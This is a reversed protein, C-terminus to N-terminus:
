ATKTLIKPEKWEERLISYLYFDKWEGRAFLSKRIVGENNFGAKGLVKQSGENRVDTHAQVRVIDKSLFLYDVMIIAAETGYGKGRESPLLYYFIELLGSSLFHGMWGIKTGDKKEIFFQKLDPRPNDYEKEQEARSQQPPFWMFEGSFEPNNLWETLLPLDEREVIRLNVTKGELL